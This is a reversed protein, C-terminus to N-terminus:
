NRNYEKKKLKLSSSKQIVLNSYFRETDYDLEVRDSTENEWNILKGENKEFLVLLSNLSFVDIFQPAAIQHFNIIKFNMGLSDTYIYLLFNLDM